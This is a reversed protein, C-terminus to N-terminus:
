TTKRYKIQFTTPTHKVHGSLNVAGM